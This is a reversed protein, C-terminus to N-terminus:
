GAACSLYSNAENLYGDRWTYPKLVYFNRSSCRKKVAIELIIEVGRFGKSDQASYEDMSFFCVVASALIVCGRIHLVIGALANVNSCSHPSPKAVARLSIVQLVQHVLSFTILGGLGTNSHLM